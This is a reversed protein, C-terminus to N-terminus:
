PASRGRHWRATWTSASSGTRASSSPWPVASRSPRGSRSGAADACTSTPTGGCTPWRAAASSGKRRSRPAYDGGVMRYDDSHLDKSTDPRVGEYPCLYSNAICWGVSPGEVLTDLPELPEGDLREPTATLAIVTARPWKELLDKYTRAAIHHGEDIWIYDPKIRTQPLRNHLTKANAIWISQWAMERHRPRILSVDFGLGADISKELFQDCLLQRHALILSKGGDKHIRRIKETATVTKGTGTPM